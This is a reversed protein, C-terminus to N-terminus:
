YTNHLQTYGRWPAAIKKNGEYNVKHNKNHPKHM